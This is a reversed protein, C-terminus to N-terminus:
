SVGTSAPPMSWVSTAILQSDELADSRLAAIALYGPDTVMQLFASRSPYHVAAIAHWWGADPTGIVTEGAGGSYLVTAGVRELHPQVAQAYQGYRELGGETFRLLNIMVVPSADSQAASMLAAIQDATPEITAM